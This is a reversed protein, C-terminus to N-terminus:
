NLKKSARKKVKTLAVNAEHLFVGKQTIKKTDLKERNRLMKSSNRETKKRIRTQISSTFVRAVSITPM